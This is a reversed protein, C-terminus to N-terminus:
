QEVGEIERSKREIRISIGRGENGSTDVATVTYVAGVDDAGGRRLYEGEPVTEGTLRRLKAGPYDARYVRYGSLDDAEPPAWSLLLDRNRPRAQLDQPPDPAVIDVAVIEERKSPGSTNGAEDVEVIYYSYSVGREVEEDRYSRKEAPLEVIMAAEEKADARKRYIRHIALDRDLAPQWRLEVAGERTPGANFSFVERPPDLDPMVLSVETRESENGSHDTATVAYGYDGGPKLGRRSFGPDRYVPRGKAELPKPTLRTYTGDSLRRYVMYGRLDGAPSPNWRVTVARKEPEVEYELGTVKPPPETDTPIITEAGCRPSENGAEDVATLSYFWPRGREVKEDLFRTQEVPIPQESIREYTGELTDSRYVNYHVVDPDPSINWVLFVGEERDHASLGMPVLPPTTDRLTIPESYVSSSLEGIIDVARVGYRYTVGQRADRDLYSLYGEVRLVPGRNIRLEEGNEERRYINFAVTRDAEGGRYRRYDWELEVVDDRVALRLDGAPDPQKPEDVRVRRTLTDLESGRADIFVIRYRYELGAQVSRDILTRGLAMRLGPSVLAYAHAINRNVEIKRWLRVPDATDFRRCLWPTDKGLMEFARYPDRVARVAELTLPRFTDEGPGRRYAEFGSTGPPTNELIIHVAQGDSLVYVPPAEQAAVPQAAPFVAAAALLLVAATRRGPFGGVGKLRVAGM